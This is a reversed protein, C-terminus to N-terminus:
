VIKAFYIQKPFIMDNRILQWSKYYLIETCNAAPPVCVKQMSKINNTCGMHFLMTLLVLDQWKSTLIETSTSLAIERIFPLKRMWNVLLSVIRDGLQCLMQSMNGSQDVPLTLNTMNLDQECNLLLGILKSVEESSVNGASSVSDTVSETDMSRESNTDIDSSSAQSSTDFPMDLSSYLWQRIRRTNAEVNAASLPM